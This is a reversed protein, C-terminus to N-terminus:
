SARHKGTEIDLKPLCDSRPASDILYLSEYCPICVDIGGFTRAYLHDVLVHWSGYRGMKFRPCQEVEM